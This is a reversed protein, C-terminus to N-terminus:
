DDKPEVYPIEPLEPMNLTVSELVGEAGKNFGYEYKYAKWEAEKGGVLLVPEGGNYARVALHTEYAGALASSGRLDKDPEPSGHSGNSLAPHAKRLHHVLVVTAGADRLREAAQVAKGVDKSSNEDSAMSKAFTDIFCLGIGERQIFKAAHKSWSGEDLWFSGRHYFHINAYSDASLSRNGAILADFRQLTPKRAGERYVYLVKTGANAALLALYMSLWTKKSDKPQGSVLILNDTPIIGEVIWKPAPDDRVTKAWEELTPPAFKINVDM